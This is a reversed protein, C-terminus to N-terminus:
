GTFLLVCGLCVRLTREERAVEGRCGLVGGAELAKKKGQGRQSSPRPLWPFGMLSCSFAPCHFSCVDPLIAAM